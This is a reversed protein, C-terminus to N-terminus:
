IRVKFRFRNLGKLPPMLLILIQKCMFFFGFNKIIHSIKKFSLNAYIAFIKHYFTIQRASLNGVSMMSASMHQYNSFGGNELSLGEKGEKALEYLKSGPYATAINLSVFSCELKRAFKITEWASTRTEGPLGIIFQLDLEIGASKGIQVCNEIDSRSIKKDIKQLIDDSGSEAGIILRKFGAKQMIKALQLDLCDARTQGKYFVNDNLGYKIIKECLQFVRERDFTLTFDMFCFSYIYDKFKEKLYKIEDIVKDVSRYRVDKYYKTQSCFACKYPCGRSMMIPLNVKYMGRKRHICSYKELDFLHFAPFPLSDLDNIPKRYTKVIKNNKEYIIGLVDFVNEKKRVACIIDEITDEEGIIGFDIAAPMKNEVVDIISRCCIEGGDLIILADSFKKIEEAVKVIHNANFTHGVFSIIDPNFSQVQQVIDKDSLREYYQDIISVSCGNRECIATLHAM